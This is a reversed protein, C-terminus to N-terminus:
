QVAPRQRSVAPTFVRRQGAVHAQCQARAAGAIVSLAVFAPSPQALRQPHPVGRLRVGSHEQAITFWAQGNEPHRYHWKQSVFIGMHLQQQLLCSEPRWCLWDRFEPMMLPAKSKM